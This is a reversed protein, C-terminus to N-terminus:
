RGVGYLSTEVLECLIHEVALHSEQIFQTNTGPIRIAIDSIQPLQGGPGTLVITGMGREKAVEVACLVNTSDGSTSIGILVDGPRGFAEVQRQFVGDFGCDNAYATIMSTDTTLALAPLAPRNFDKTLRSVLEAAMHQCDAASGGNGCLLVKNGAALARVLLQAASVIDEVCHRAAEQRIDAGDLLRKRALQGAFFHEARQYDEPIGIDLFAAEVPYAYLGKGIWSPFIEKELSVRRNNSFVALMSRKILYIGASIWGDGTVQGKEVFDLVRQQEDLRVQGYREVGDIHALVISASASKLQHFKLLASLNVDCFSDGNMVLLIDSLATPLANLVAGGTGLPEQELSYDLRINKYTDGFAEKVQFGQYGTCLVVHRFGFANLQDLLYAVFPRGRVEAVVKQRDPLVSRLRTGLGGALIMVTLDGPQMEAEPM